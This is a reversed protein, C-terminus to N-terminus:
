VPRPKPDSCHPTPPRLPVGRTGPACTCARQGSRSRSCKGPQGHPAACTRCSSGGGRRRIVGSGGPSLRPPRCNCLVSATIGGTTGGTSPASGRDRKVLSSPTTALAQGAAAGQLPQSLSQSSHLPPSDRQGHRACPPCRANGGRSPPRALGRQSACPPARLLAGPTVPRATRLHQAGGAPELHPVPRSRRPQASADLGAPRSAAPRQPTAAVGAREPSHGGGDGRCGTAPSARRAGDM